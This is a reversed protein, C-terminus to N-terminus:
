ATGRRGVWAALLQPRDVYMLVHRPLSRQVGYHLIDIQADQKLVLVCNPKDFPTVTLIDTQALGHRRRWERPALEVPEFRDIADLPLVARSRAGVTMRLADDSLVHVGAGLHWRDGLLWALTFLAAMARVAHIVAQTDPDRVLANIILTDVPLGVVLTLLVVARATGYAGREFYTLAVGQALTQPMPRGRVRQLCGRWLQRDLRLIGILEPPLLAVLRACLTPAARLRQWAEPAHALDKAALMLLPAMVAASHLFPKLTAPAALKAVVVGSFAAFAWGALERWSTARLTALLPLRPM